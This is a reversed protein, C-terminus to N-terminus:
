DWILVFDSLLNTCYALTAKQGFVLRTVIGYIVGLVVGIILLGYKQKLKSM